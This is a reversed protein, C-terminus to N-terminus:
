ILFILIGVSSVPAEEIKIIICDELLPVSGQDLDGRITGKFIIINESDRLLEIRQRWEKAFVCDIVENYPSTSRFIVWTKGSGADGYNEIMAREEKTKLGAYGQWKKQVELIPGLFDTEDVLQFVSKDLILAEESKSLNLGTQFIRPLEGQTIVFIIIGVIIPIIFVWIIKSKLFSKSFNKDNSIKDRGIIEIKGIPSNDFVFSSNKQISSKKLQNKIKGLDSPLNIKEDENYFKLAKEGEHEIEIKLRKRKHVFHDPFINNYIGNYFLRDDIIQASLEATVDTGEDLGIEPVYYIAKIIKLDSM